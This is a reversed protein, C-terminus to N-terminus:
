ADHSGRGAAVADGLAAGLLAFKTLAATQALRAGPRGQLVALLTV